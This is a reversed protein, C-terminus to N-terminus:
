HSSEYVVPNVCSTVVNFCAASSFVFQTCCCFVGCTSLLARPRAFKLGCAWLVLCIISRSHGFGLIRFRIDLCSHRSGFVESWCLVLCVFWLTCLELVSSAEHECLVCCSPLTLAGHIVGSWLSLVRVCHCLLPWDISKITPKNSCHSVSYCCCFIWFFM